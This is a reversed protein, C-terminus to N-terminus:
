SACSLLYLRLLHPNKPIPLLALGTPGSVDFEEPFDTYATCLAHLVLM